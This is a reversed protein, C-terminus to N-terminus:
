RCNAKYMLGGASTQSIALMVCVCVSVCLCFFPNLEFVFVSHRRMQLCFDQTHKSFDFLFRWGSVTSIHLSAGFFFHIRTKM